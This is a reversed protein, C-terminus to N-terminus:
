GPSGLAAAPQLARGTALAQALSESFTTATAGDPTQDHCLCPRLARRAVLLARQLAASGLKSAEADLSLLLAELQTAAAASWTGAELMEWVAQAYRLQEVLRNVVESRIVASPVSAHPHYLEITIPHM